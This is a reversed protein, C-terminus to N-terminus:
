MRILTTYIIYDEVLFTGGFWWGRQWPGPGGQRCRPTEQWSWRMRWCSRQKRLIVKRWSWRQQLMWPAAFAWPTTPKRGDNTTTGHPGPHFLLPSTVMKIPPFHHIMMTEFHCDRFGSVWHMRSTKNSCMHEVWFDLYQVYMPECKQCSPCSWNEKPLNGRTKRQKPRMSKFITSTKSFTTIHSNLPRIRNIHGSANKTLRNLSDMGFTMPLSGGGSNELCPSRQFIRMKKYYSICRKMWPQQEMTMDPMVVKRHTYTFFIPTTGKAPHSKWKKQARLFGM